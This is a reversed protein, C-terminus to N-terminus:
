RWSSNIKRKENKLHKDKYTEARFDWLVDWNVGTAVKEQMAELEKRQREIYYGVWRKNGQCHKRFACLCTEMAWVTKFQDDIPLGGVAVELEKFKRNLKPYDKSEVSMGVAFALGGRSSAANVLDLSHPNLSTETIANIADLYLFLTFRGFTFITSSLSFAIDYAGRNCGGARRLASKFLAHQSGVSGVLSRYSLFCDVWQNRSRTWRRDTQFLLKDRNAEWWRTMRKPDVTEFDPFENYMYYATTSSYCTAYLFALWYRQERNLEFRNSLYRLADNAPDIDREKASRLHYELYRNVTDM